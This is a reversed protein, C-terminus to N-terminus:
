WFKGVAQPSPGVAVDSPLGRELVVAREVSFTSGAPDITGCVVPQTASEVSRMLVSASLTTRDDRVCCRIVSELTSWPVLFGSFCVGVHACIVYFFVLM